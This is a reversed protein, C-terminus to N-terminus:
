KGEDAIIGVRRRFCPYVPKYEVNRCFCLGNGFAGVANCSCLVSLIIEPFCVVSAGARRRSRMMIMELEVGEIAHQWQFVAGGFLFDFIGHFSMNQSLSRQHSQIRSFLILKNYKTSGFYFENIFLFDDRFKTLICGPDVCFTAPVVQFETIYNRQTKTSLQLNEGRGQARQM